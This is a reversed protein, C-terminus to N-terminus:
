PRGAITLQFDPVESLILPLMDLCFFKVADVNRLYRMAGVFVLENPLPAEETASFGDSDVGPQVVRVRASPTAAQLTQKDAESVELAIAVSNCIAIEEQKERADEFAAAVRCPCDAPKAM